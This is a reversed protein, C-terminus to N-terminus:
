TSSYYSNFCPNFTWSISFPNSQWATIKFKILLFDFAISTKACSVIFSILRTVKFSLSTPTLSDLQFAIAYNLWWYICSAVLAQVNLTMTSVSFFPRYFLCQFLLTSLFEHNIFHHLLPHSFDSEQWTQASTSPPSSTAMVSFLSAPLTVLNLAPIILRPHGSM